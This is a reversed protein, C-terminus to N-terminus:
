VVLVLPGKLIVLGQAWIPLQKKVGAESKANDLFFPSSDGLNLKKLCSALSGKKLSLFGWFLFQHFKM